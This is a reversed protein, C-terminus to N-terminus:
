NKQDIDESLFFFQSLYQHLDTVAYVEKLITKTM